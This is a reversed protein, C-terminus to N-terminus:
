VQVFLVAEIPNAAEPLPFMGAKVATFLPVEGITAVITTVGINLLPLTFQEPAVWVKVMVTFGDAWTFKVVLWTTQLPLEVVKTFGLRRLDLIIDPFCFDVPFSPALLCVTKENQLADVVAKLESNIEVM